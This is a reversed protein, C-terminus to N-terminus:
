GTGVDLVDITFTPSFAAPPPPPAGAATIVKTWRRSVFGQQGNSLRVEYWNPVTGILEAQQGPTLSGIQASEGSASVRVIVRTTVDPGPVVVDAAVAGASLLISSMGALARIFRIPCRVCRMTDEM